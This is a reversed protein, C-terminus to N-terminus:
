EELLIDLQDITLEIRRGRYAGPFIQHDEPLMTNAREILLRARDARALKEEDAQAVAADHEAKEKAYEAWPKLIHSALIRHATRVSKGQDTPNGEADIKVKWGISGELREVEVYNKHESRYNHWEGRTLGYVSVAVVRVRARHWRDYTANPAGAAYEAGVVIDKMKM